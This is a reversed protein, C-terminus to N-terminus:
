TASRCAQSPAGSSARTIVRRQLCRENDEKNQLPTQKGERAGRMMIAVDKLQPDRQESTTTGDVSTRARSAEAVHGDLM